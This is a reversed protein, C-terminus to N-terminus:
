IEDYLKQYSDIEYRKRSDYSGRKLENLLQPDNYLREVADVAADIDDEPVIIGEKNTEIIVDRNVNHDNAIIAVGSAKVDVCVGPIGESIWHTMFLMIDYKNIRKYYEVIDSSDNFGIYHANKNKELFSDFDKKTEANEYNGYFDIEFKINSNENLKEVIQMTDYLGKGRSLLSYYLLHLVEGDNFVNPEVGNGISRANPFVEVKGCFRAVQQRLSETEVWICQLDKLIGREVYPADILLQKASFAPIIAITSKLTKRAFIKQMRLLFATRKSDLAYFVKRYKSAKRIIAFTAMAVNKAKSKSVDVELLDMHKGISKLKNYVAEGERSVGGMGPPYEKIYLISDSKM